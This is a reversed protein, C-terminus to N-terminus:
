NFIEILNIHEQRCYCALQIKKKVNAIRTETSFDVTPHQSSTPSNSRPNNAATVQSQTSHDLIRDSIEALKTLEVGESASLVWRVSVPM